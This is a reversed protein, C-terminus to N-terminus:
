KGNLFNSETAKKMRPHLSLSLARFFLLLLQFPSMFINSRKRDCIVQPDKGGGGGAGERPAGLVERPMGANCQPRMPVRGRGGESDVGLGEGRRKEM